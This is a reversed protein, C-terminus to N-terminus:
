RMPWLEHCAKFSVGSPAQVILSMNPSQLSPIKLLGMLPRSSPSNIREGGGGNSSNAGCSPLGRFKQSCWGAGRVCCTMPAWFHHPTCCDPEVRPRLCCCHLGSAHFCHKPDLLCTLGLLRILFPHCTQYLSCFSKTGEFSNQPLPYVSEGRFIFTYLAKM